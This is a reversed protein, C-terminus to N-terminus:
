LIISWLTYPFAFWFCSVRVLTVPFFYGPCDQLRAVLMMFENLMEISRELLPYKCLLLRLLIREMPVGFYHWDDILSLPNHIFFFVFQLLLFSIQPFLLLLHSYSSLFPHSQVNALFNLAALNLCSTSQIGLIFM